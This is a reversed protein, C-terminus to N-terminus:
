SFINLLFVVFDTLISVNHCFSSNDHGHLRGRSAKCHVEDSPEIATLTKSHHHRFISFFKSGYGPWIDPRSRKLKLVQTASYRPCFSLTPVIATILFSIDVAYAREFEVPGLRGCQADMVSSSIAEWSGGLMHVM